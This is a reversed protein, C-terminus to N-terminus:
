KFNDQWVQKLDADFNAGYTIISMPGDFYGRSQQVVDDRRISESMEKGGYFDYLRGYKRYTKILRDCRSSASELWDAQTLRGRRVFRDLDSDSFPCDNYVRCVTKATLEVVRSINEPSTETAFGTLSFKENGASDQGFGYVLGNERRVVERLREMMYCDFKSLCMGQFRDEYECGCIDPFFIRLKVNQNTEKLKHVVAPTYNLETNESVATRPLFAFTKELIELVKGENKIKGSIGIICNTASLRRGLFDLMQDRSFSMINEEPGFVHTSFVRGNFLNDSILDRMKYKPNDLARRREDIIVNRETEIKEPAFLSNQLRDGILEILVDINDAIIRGYLAMFNQGTFANAIGGNYELCDEMARQSPFRSTGKCLMHECFHTLGYEAPTEDRVGTCFLVKVNVTELDMPDLIVTVGNSLKHLTPNYQM